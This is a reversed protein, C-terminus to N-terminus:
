RLPGAGAPDELGSLRRLHGQVKVAREIEAWTCAGARVLAEGIRTGSARAAKSAREVDVAKVAGMQVLVQGLLYDNTRRRYSGPDERWSPPATIRLGDDEVPQQAPRGASLEPPLNTVRRPAQKQRQRAEDRLREQIRCAAEVTERDCVAGEVLIDGIRKGTEQQLSLAARMQHDSVHGLQQLIQGLVMDNILPLSSPDSAHKQVMAPADGSTFALEVSRLIRCVAEHLDTRTVDGHRGLRETIEAAAALCCALDNAYAGRLLKELERIRMMLLGQDGPDEPNAREAARALASIQPVSM